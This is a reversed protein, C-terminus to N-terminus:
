TDACSYTDGGIAVQGAHCAQLGNGFNGLTEFHHYRGDDDDVALNGYTDASRVEYYYLTCEALGTLPVQHATTKGPVQQLLDPPTSTGYVVETGSAEDTSWSITATADTVGSEEVGSILPPRCDAGAEDGRPVNTGGQGDDADVYEVNITDGDTLSLLGDGGDPPAGTSVIQGAFKGSGPRTEALTLAQRASETTSWIEVTVSPAGANGDNVRVGITQGCGYTEQDLRVQGASPQIVDSTGGTIVLAYTADTEPTALYADQNIEAARIEVHWVGAAPNQVFVNEVTDIANPEGGPLSFNGAKLGVNGHYVTGTPSVVELDLDNIRHLTASTTGPPDPYVLTVKLETEGPDVDVDFSSFDGLELPLEADVIFSTAARDHALKVSPRGWGQHVRTLDHSEGSFAYQQATNILLAKMTSAHPQREFVTTGQPDTGFVNESWMQFMIGAVGASEPTAASTGGFGSTYTNGTTTTYIDDYWYNIDPKIRGDEAPGISGAFDWSDDATDLTDYHNVGGVSIINKAWAQPRSDQNGANSQSQLIVFDLRWIIDDMDYSISTYQRTRADGWSNSQFSAFYPAQKLEQTQAFRDTLENYDAFIGQAGVCPLEGTAQASGDGDRAGNGFVIGYTSTGHSDVGHPGHFMVGDFDMHTGEIGGDLVEGRVGQGCYGLNDEVWNTGSDERVLNMDNEPASWRDIWLVDDHAALRRLQERTVVLELLHGSPPNAVIQAGWTAADRAIRTKGSEGWELALARVRRSTDGAVAPTSLWERLPQEIRYWPQYAEVREVFDLGRVAPLLTPDVRVIHANHPFYELVEAGLAALAARWEPLGITRFQVLFLRGAGLEFGQPARPMA